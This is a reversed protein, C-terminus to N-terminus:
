RSDVFAEVAVFDTALPLIRKLVSALGPDIPFSTLLSQFGRYPHKCAGLLEDVVWRPGQIRDLEDGPEYSPDFTVLEGEIGQQGNLSCSVSFGSGPLSLGRVLLVSLLDSLVMAEQVELPVPRGALNSPRSPPGQDM